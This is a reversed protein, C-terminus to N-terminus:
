GVRMVSPDVAVTVFFGDIFDLLHSEDHIIQDIDSDCTSAPL